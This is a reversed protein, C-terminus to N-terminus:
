RPKMRAMNTAAMISWRQFVATKRAAIYYGEDEEGIELTGVVERYVRTLFLTERM